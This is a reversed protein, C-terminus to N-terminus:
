RGTMFHELKAAHHRFENKRAWENAPMNAAAPRRARGREKEVKEGMALDDRM